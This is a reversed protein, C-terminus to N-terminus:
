FPYGVCRACSMRNVFHHARCRLCYPSKLHLLKMSSSSHTWRASPPIARVVIGLRELVEEGEDDVTAEIVLDGKGVEVRRGLQRGASAIRDLDEVWDIELVVYSLTILFLVTVQKDGRGLFCKVRDGCGVVFGGPGPLQTTAPRAARLLASISNAVSKGAGTTASVSPM